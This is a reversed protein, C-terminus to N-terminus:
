AARYRGAADARLVPDRGARAAPPLRGQDDGQHRGRNPRRLKRDLRGRLDRVDGALQSRDRWPPRRGRARGEEAGGGEPERRLGLRRRGRRERYRFAVSNGQQYFGPHGDIQVRAGSMELTEADRLLTSLAHSSFGGTGPGPRASAAPGNSNPSTIIAMVPRTEPEKSNDLLAAELEYRDVLAHGHVGHKSLRGESRWAYILERSADSVARDGRAGDDVALEAHDGTRRGSSCSKWWRGNPTSTWLRSSTQPRVGPRASAPGAQAAAGGSFARRERRRSGWPSRRTRSPRSM